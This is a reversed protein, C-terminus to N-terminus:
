LECSVDSVKWSLDYSPETGQLGPVLIVSNLAQHSSDKVSSYSKGSLETPSSDAQLVPSGLEIGPGPLDM